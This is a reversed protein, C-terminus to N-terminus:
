ACLLGINSLHTTVPGHFVKGRSSGKRTTIEKAAHGGAHSKQSPGLGGRAQMADAVKIGYKVQLEYAKATADAIQKASMGHTVMQQQIKALKEAKEAAGAMAALIGGGTNSCDGLFISRPEQHALRAGGDLILRTEASRRKSKRGGPTGAFSKRELIDISAADRIALARDNTRQFSMDHIDSNYFPEIRLLPKSKDLRPGPPLVDENMDPGNFASAEV